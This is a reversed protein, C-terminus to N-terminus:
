NEAHSAGSILDALARAHSPPALEFERHMVDMAADIDGEALYRYVRQIAADEPVFLEREEVEALLEADDFDELTKPAPQKSKWYDHAWMKVADRRNFEAKIVDDDVDAINFSIETNLTVVPM